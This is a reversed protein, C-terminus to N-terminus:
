ATSCTFGNRNAQVLLKRLRGRRERDILVLPEQATGTMRTQPTFQFHWQKEGTRPISRWLPTPSCTTARVATGALDPCPNGTPWYLLDLEPDYSGTM